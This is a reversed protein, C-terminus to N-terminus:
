SVPLEKVGGVQVSFSAWSTFTASARLILMIDYQMIDYQMIDYQMVDYQMIDYQMVDYQM